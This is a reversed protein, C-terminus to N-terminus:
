PDQEERAVVHQAQRRGPDAQRRGVPGAQDAHGNERQRPDQPADVGLLSRQQGREAVRVAGVGRLVLAEYREDPSWSRTGRWTLSDRRPALSAGTRHATM